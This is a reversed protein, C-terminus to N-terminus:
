FLKQENYKEIRKTAIDCYEKSIDIGIFNRNSLIAMKGTTGSGMFPDLVVDRENSWTKIHDLALQEPFPAPHETRDNISTVCKWINTRPSLIPVPRKLKKSFDKYGGWLNQKDCILHHTKPKGKSFVFMYEFIQTYRNSKENAPYTSSNKEFIMTDHLNFGADMFKLAQRFSTGTESGDITADGVIWVIVGGDKVIRVLEKTIADL